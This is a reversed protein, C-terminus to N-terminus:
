QVTVPFSVQVDSSGGIASFGDERVANTIEATKIAVGNVPPLHRLTLILEGTGVVAVVTNELGIPLGNGDQDTYSHTLPAGPNDSAPGNVASGTFFVQHEQSEDAIEETIDEPPDELRNEFRVDTVYRGPALAIPDIMPPDGGPGDPDDFLAVLPTGGGEPTFTLAVTTIVENEHDHDHHDGHGCGLGLLSCLSVLLTIKKM